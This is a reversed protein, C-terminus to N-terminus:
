YYTRCVRVGCTDDRYSPRENSRYASRVYPASDNFCAGRLARRHSELVGQVDEKDEVRGGAYGVHRGQCWAWANGHMDFLGLDNPRKQGVPWIRNQSNGSYWAYRPLLEASSGFYRSSAAGARCAYEWEAETPLRYGTRRLHDPYPRMGEGIKEPYCWQGKPVGEKESLWNCYAAAEYWTVNVVPAGPEPGHRQPYSRGLRPRDKLFRQWQAVTVPKTALAFGRPIVRRHPGEDEAVRDPEGPPSGMRFEVPGKVLTLTQEQGNVYWGRQGDPDRRALERDIRELEKSRGWDLPRDERGEKGHRLLWDIAGHTGADPDDRYWGLLRKVLPGRVEAPLDKEGYEGLAVVLARRASADQEEELRKVLLRAPARLLGARLVLYSRATSDPAHRFLPWVPGPQGLHLLTAGATAQRRAQRAQEAAAPVPRHWVSAVVGLAGASAALSVAVPRYGQGALERCRALHQEGSLGHPGVAERSPDDRWVSAYRTTPRGEPKERDGKRAARPPAAQGVDVDLLLREGAFVKDAHAAPDDGLTVHPGPVAGESKCWVCSYRVVGDPGTLGQVTAAALGAKTHAGAQALLEAAPAGASVAAQEGKDGERWLLAYRDGQLTRYAAVDAPLLGAQRAAADRAAVQGLTLGTQLKWARGDRAWV